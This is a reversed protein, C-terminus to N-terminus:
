EWTKLWLRQRYQEPTLKLGYTLPAFYVFSITALAILAFFIKKKQKSQDILYVIIIIAFILGIFYHYLFMVRKIGIFPLMNLLYGGLLFNLKWNGIELKWDIKLSKIKLYNKLKQFNFIVFNFILLLVATTSAWWIVPNGLLYIRASDKVWYYIPRTMFPWSYWQSGYPHNSTLRQNSQYMQINLEIFKQVLGAKKFDPNNAYQSNLLTKQFSPTMFADGTGSKALLSFHVAFVSFYIAFPVMTFFVAFNFIDRLKRTKLIAVTEIIAPLALFTAGTWKISIALGGFLGMLILNKLRSRNRNKFYFLFALFGFLLLFSDMLIFRSQVLIANEFVVFIGGAFAALPSLGFELLLLFIVLPLIAGALSPLFRLAMYKNDPFNDGIQNFSFEPKFDFFKAFGAIMLKGLPPHIDFFYEGTYYGSVFKGFHVEDFVVENPSGFYFFRTFLSLFILIWLYKRM